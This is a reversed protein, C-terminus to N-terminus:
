KSSFSIALRAASNFAGSSASRSPCSEPGPRVSFGSYNRRHCWICSHIRSLGNCVSKIRTLTPTLPVKREGSAVSSRPEIGPLEVFAERTNVCNPPMNTSREHGDGDSITM